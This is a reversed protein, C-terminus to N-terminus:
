RSEEEITDSKIAEIGQNLVTSKETLMKLSHNVKAQNDINQKNQIEIQQKMRTLTKETNEDKSANEAIEKKINIVERNIEDKTIFLDQRIAQREVENSKLEGQVSEM